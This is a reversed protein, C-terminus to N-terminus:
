TLAEDITLVQDLRDESLALTNTLEVRQGAGGRKVTKRTRAYDVLIRRMSQAAAAFFHVRDNWDVGSNGLLRLYAENVLATPQLTHDPRERHMFHAALRRLEPYMVEMLRSQAELNGARVEGLLRTIEGSDAM